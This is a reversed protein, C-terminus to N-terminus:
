AHCDNAPCSVVGAIAGCVAALVILGVMEHAWGPLAAGSAQATVLLTNRVINGALVLAGVAPLRTFFARNGRGQWLAAVCATFYGLWVMQVGSCPADVIILQGDVLLSAGSREVAHGARLLWASAEATLVRLPFGAYFQLSALLPLALVALGLVPGTAVATPLFAALGAALALLAILAVPLPALVGQAGTALLAGILALAFWGLRPASRLLRRQQWVLAGLAALALLGLPDDSRDLMRRGMWLWTPWLAAALLTLWFGAPLADIRQSWRGRAAGHAPEPAPQVAIPPQHVIQGATDCWGAGSTPRREPAMAQARAPM